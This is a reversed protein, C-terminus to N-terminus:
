AYGKIYGTPIATSTGDYTGVYTIISDRTPRFKLELGMVADSKASPITVSGIDFLRMKTCEVYETSTTGGIQMKFPIVERNLFRLEFQTIPYNDKPKITMTAEFDYNKKGTFNAQEYGLGVERVRESTFTFGGTSYSAIAADLNTTTTITVKQQTVAIVASNSVREQNWRAFKQNHYSTAANFAIASESFQNFELEVTEKLVGGNEMLWGYSKIEGGFLNLDIDDGTTDRNDIHVHFAMSDTTTAWNTLGMTVHTDTLAWTTPATVNTFVRSMIFPAHYVGSLSLTGAELIQSQRSPLVDGMFVEEYTSYAPLTFSLDILSNLPIHTDAADPAVPITLTGGYGGKGYGAIEDTYFVFSSNGSYGEAM